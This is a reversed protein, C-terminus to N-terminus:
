ETEKAADCRAASVPQQGEYRTLANYARLMAVADDDAMARAAADLDRRMKAVAFVGGPGCAIYWVDARVRAMERPLANGLSDPATNM